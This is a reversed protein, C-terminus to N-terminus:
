ASSLRVAQVQLRSLFWLMQCVAQLSLGKQWNKRSKHRTDQQNRTILCLGRFSGFMAALSGKRIKERTRKEEPMIRSVSQTMTSKMSLSATFGCLNQKMGTSQRARVDQVSLKDIMQSSGWCYFAGTPKLVRYCEGVWVTCWDLYEPVSQFVFDFDGRMHYYPPDAIVLDISESPLCKLIDVCDGAFIQNKEIGNEFLNM